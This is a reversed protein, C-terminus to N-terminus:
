KVPAGVDFSILGSPLYPKGQSIQEVASLAMRKADFLAAYYLDLFSEFRRLEPKDPSSWGKHERNLITFSTMPRKIFASLFEGKGSVIELSRAISRCFFGTPDLELCFVSVADSFCHKLDEPKVCVHFLSKLLRHYVVALSNEFRANSQYHFKVSFTNVPRHHKLRYLASDLDSEIRHHLGKWNKPPTKQQWQTQKAYIYPHTSRDLCYHGIFGIYYALLADFELRGSYLSIEHALTQFLLDTKQTHMWSGYQPLFSKKGSLARHFFLLDPGQLGWYFATPHQKILEASRGQLLVELDKGFLYHSIFSPLGSVTREMFSLTNLKSSKSMNILGMPQFFQASYIPNIFFPPSWGSAYSKRFEIFFPAM